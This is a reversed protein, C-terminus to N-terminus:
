VVEAIAEDLLASSNGILNDVYEKTAIVSVDVSISNDTITIGNGATYEAGGGGGGVSISKWGNYNVQLNGSTPSWRLVGIMPYTRQFDGGVYIYGDGAQSM